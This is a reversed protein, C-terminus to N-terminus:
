PQVSVADELGNLNAPKPEPEEIVVTVVTEEVAGGNGIKQTTTTKTTKKTKDSKDKGSNDKLNDGTGPENAKPSPLTGLPVFNAPQLLIDGEPGVPNMGIKKRINNTSLWGWERGKAFAEYQSKIDGRLLAEMDFYFGYGQEREEITLCKSNLGKEWGVCQPRVSDTVFGLNEEEINARPQNSMIGLKHPPVRFIRAIQLDQYERAEQFQSDKNESRSRSFKMGEELLLLKYSNVGSTGEEITKKLRDAADPSMVAPHELVGGPRSGNGFFKAANEQLALALAFVEQLVGSLEMGILGVRSYGRLHLVDKPALNVGNQHFQYVLKKTRSDRYLNIHSPDIPYLGVPDGDIDRMIEAYANQRGVLNGQMCSIFDFSTMESNPADHMVYFMRHDRAEVMGGKGDGKMLVCPISAMTEMHIKQCAFVTAVGLMKLPTVTIGTASAAHGLLANILWQDPSKMDSTM